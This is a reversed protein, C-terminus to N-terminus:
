RQPYVATRKVEGYAFSTDMSAVGSVKHIKRRVFEEYELLSGVIVRLLYDWDGSMLYCELVEPIDRIEQEFVKIAKETHQNLRLRMFGTVPLDVKNQDVQAAYGVIVKDRELARVRRLCPSPSLNVRKALEENSIRGNLQLEKIIKKDTEDM